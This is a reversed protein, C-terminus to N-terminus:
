SEGFWIIKNEFLLPWPRSFKIISLMGTNLLLKSDIDSRKPIWKRKRMIKIFVFFSFKNYKSFNPIFIETNWHSQFSFVIGYWTQAQIFLFSTMYYANYLHLYKFCVVITIIVYMYTFIFTCLCLCLTHFHSDHFYPVKIICYWLFFVKELCLIIIVLRLRSSKEEFIDKKRSFVFAM